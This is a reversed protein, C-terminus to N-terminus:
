YVSMMSSIAAIFFASIFLNVGLMESMKEVVYVLNYCALSIIIVSIIIVVISNYSNITKSKLINYRSAPLPDFLGIDSSIIDDDFFSNM